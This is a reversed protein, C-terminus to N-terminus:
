PNPVDECPPNPCPNNYYPSDPVDVFAWPEEVTNAKDKVVCKIEFPGTATVIVSSKTAGNIPAWPILNDMIGPQYKKIMWQYTYPPVGGAVSLNFNYQENYKLEDPPYPTFQIQLPDAYVEIMKWVLVDQYGPKSMTLKVQYSGPLDYAHVPKPLLGQATKGDGFNWIFNTLGQHASADFTIPQGWKVPQPAASFEPPLVKASANVSVDPYGPKSIVLKAQYSGPKPYKKEVTPQQTQLVTGDGFTWKYVTGPALRCSKSADLTVPNGWVVTGPLVDLSPFVREDRLAEKQLTKKLINGQGDRVLVPRGLADYETFVTQRQADTASSLGVGPKYTYTTVSAGAPHLRLEDTLVGQGKVTVKAGPQLTLMLERYQWGPGSVPINQVAGSTVAVSGQGKARFSLLYKGAKGQFDLTCMGQDALAKEGTYADGIKLDNDAWAWDGTPEEFSTCAVQSCEAESAERLKLTGQAGYALSSVSGWASRQQVINGFADARENTLAPKYRGDFSFVGGVTKAPQFDKLKAANRVALIQYPYVQGPAFEKFLNLSASVLASDADGIAREWTQEEVVAEHVHKARLLALAKVAEDKAGTTDFDAPYRLRVTREFGDGSQQVKRTLQIHEPNDYFFHLFNETYKAANKPDYTRERTNKLFKAGSVATFFAYAYKTKPYTPKYDQPVQQPLLKQVTGVKLGTVTGRKFGNDEEFFYENNLRQLLNGDKDYVSQETLLGRKRDMSVPPAFPFVPQSLDPYDKPSTYQYVTKGGIGGEGNLVTVAHYGVHSGQTSGLPQKSSSSRVLYNCLLSGQGSSYEYHYSPESVLTGSSRSPDSLDRYVYEKVVPPQSDAESKNTIRKVRLGGTIQNVPNQLTDYQYEKWAVEIAADGADAGGLVVATLKYTRGPQLVIEKTGQNDLDEASYGVLSQLTSQDILLASSYCSNQDVQQPPIPDYPNPDSQVPLNCLAHGSVLALVPVPGAISFYKVTTQNPVSIVSETKDKSDGIPQYDVSFSTCHDNPEFEFETSGGSPYTIKKLMGAKMPEGYPARDAGTLSLPKGFATVNLKPVLTANDTKGNYYGWHDQAFSNRAPLEPATEYTFTYPPAFLCEPSREMLSDLRLRLSIADKADCTLAINKPKFYSQSFVYQKLLADQMNRIEIGSLVRDGPLDCREAGYLFGISGTAAKIKKIRKGKLSVQTEYREEYSGCYGTGQQSVAHSHNHNASSFYDITYPEYELTIEDTESASIIKTLYWSSTSFGNGPQWGKVGDKTFWSGSSTQEQESFLWRTGDPTTLTWSAIAGGQVTDYDIKLKQYPVIQPVGATDLMFSGSYEGANFYFIDPETDIKGEAAETLFKFFTTDTQDKGDYKWQFNLFGKPDEDPLGRVSRSIAGGASLAWGLGTRSAVEEVKTGGAHYGISVPVQLKRGQLTWLPIGISPTGTYPSVPVEGFKALSAAEPSPPVVSQQASVSGGLFMVFLFVRYNKSM